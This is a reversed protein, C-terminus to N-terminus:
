IAIQELLTIFFLAEQNFKQPLESLAPILIHDHWLHAKEESDFNASLAFSIAEEDDPKEGGVEILRKLQPDKAPSGEKFFIPFFENRIYSLLNEERSPNVMFTINYTYM